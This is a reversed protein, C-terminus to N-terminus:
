YDRHPPLYRGMSAWTSLFRHNAALLVLAPCLQELLNQFGIIFVARSAAALGSIFSGTLQSM